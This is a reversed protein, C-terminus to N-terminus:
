SLMATPVMAIIAGATALAMDKQADWPDGQAGLYDSGASGGLLEAAWWEVVEFAMSSAMILAPSLLYSWIGVPQAYRELLDYLPYAILLGYAFHVVRDYHNRGSAPSRDQRICAKILARYPVRAYTYHSGVTHLVLFVAILAYSLASLPWDPYSVALVVIATVSLANEALWVTRDHPRLALVFWFLTFGVLLWHPYDM